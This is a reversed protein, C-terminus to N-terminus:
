CNQMRSLSLTCVEEVTCRQKRRSVPRTDKELELVSVYIM